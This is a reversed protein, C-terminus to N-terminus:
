AAERSQSHRVASIVRKTPNLALRLANLLTEPENDLGICNEVTDEFAHSRVCLIPMLRRKARVAAILMEQELPSITHYILTADILDSEVLRIAEDTTWAEHVAYGAKRLILSRSTMLNHNKGISLIHPTMERAEETRLLAPM